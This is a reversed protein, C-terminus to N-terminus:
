ASHQLGFPGADGGLHRLPQHRPHVDIRHLRCDVQRERFPKLTFRSSLSAESSVVSDFAMRLSNKASRAVEFIGPTSVALALFIADPPM